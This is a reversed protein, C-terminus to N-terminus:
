PKARGISGFAELEFKVPARHGEDPTGVAAEEARERARRARDRRPKRRARRTLKARRREGPTM